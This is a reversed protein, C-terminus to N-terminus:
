NQHKKLEADMMKAIVTFMDDVSIGAAVAKSVLDHGIFQTVMHLKLRQEPTLKDLWSKARYTTFDIIQASSKNKDREKTEDGNPQVPDGIMYKAHFERWTDVHKGGWGSMWQEWQEATYHPPKRLNASYEVFDRVHQTLPNPKHADSPEIDIRGEYTEGDAYTITFSTKRYGSRPPIYKAANRVIRDAEAFTSVTLGDEIHESESWDFRISVAPIRDDNIQLSEVVETGLADEITTVRGAFEPRAVMETEDTVDEAQDEVETTEQELVRLGEGRKLEDITTTIYEMVEDSADIYKAIRIANDWLYSEHMITRFHNYWVRKDVRPDLIDAANIEEIILGDAANCMEGTMDDYWSFRAERKVYGEAGRRTKFFRDIHGNSRGVAYVKGRYVHHLADIAYSPYSNVSNLLIGM